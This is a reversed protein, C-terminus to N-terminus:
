NQLFSVGSEASDSINIELNTRELTVVSSIFSFNNEGRGLAKRDLAGGLM